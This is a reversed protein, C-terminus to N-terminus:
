IPDLEIKGNQREYALSRAQLGAWEKARFSPARAGPGAASNGLVPGLLLPM